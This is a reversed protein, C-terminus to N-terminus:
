NSGAPAAWQSGGPTANLRPVVDARAVRAMFRDVLEYTRAAAEDTGALTEARLADPDLGRRTMADTGGNDLWLDLTSATLEPHFQLGLSRGVTFAQPGLATRAFTTANAPAIFQDYHWQFWPGTGVLDADDTQVTYWGIEEGPARQVTGGTAAALAQGGFCIGFIPIGADHATGLLELEPGIWNGIAEDDYVSWPAGMPIILDFDLPNPFDVTVNPAHANEGSVVNFEVLDFGHHAFREGVPGLPSTHDQQIFLARV